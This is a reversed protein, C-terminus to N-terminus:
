AGENLKSPMEVNSISQPGVTVDILSSACRL